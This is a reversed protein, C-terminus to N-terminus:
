QRRGLRGPWPRHAVRVRQASRSQAARSRSLCGRARSVRASGDGDAECRAGPRRAVGGVKRYGQPPPAAMGPLRPPHPNLLSRLQRCAAPRATAGRVYADVHLTARRQGSAVLRMALIYPDAELLTHHDDGLRSVALDVTRPELKFHDDHLDLLEKYVASRNNNFRAITNRLLREFVQTPVPM